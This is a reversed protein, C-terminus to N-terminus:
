GEVPDLQHRGRRDRHTQGVPRRDAGPCPHHRGGPGLHIGPELRDHRLLLRPDPIPVCLQDEIEIAVPSQLDARVIVSHGEAKPSGCRPREDDLGFFERDVQDLIRFQPERGFLAEQRVRLSQVLAKARALHLGALHRVKGDERGPRVPGLQRDGLRVQPLIRAQVQRAGTGGPESPYGARSSRTLSRVTRTTSRSGYM